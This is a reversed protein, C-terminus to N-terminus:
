VILIPTDIKLMLTVGFGSIDIEDGSVSELDTTLIDVYAHGSIVVAFVSVVFVLVFCLLRRGLKKMVLVVEYM